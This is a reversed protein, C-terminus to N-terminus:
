CCDYNDTWGCMTNDTECEFCTDKGCSHWCTDQITVLGGVVEKLSTETRPVTEKLRKLTTKSLKLKKTM